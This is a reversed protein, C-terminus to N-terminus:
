KQLENKFIELSYNNHNIKNNIIEISKDNNKLYKANIFQDIIRLMLGVNIIEGGMALVNADYNERAAKAVLPCKTLICRIGKTKNAANSIGVGTGCIVIGLDVKKEAILTGVCHGYMPYHTRESDHTGCDYIIFGKEVLNKVIKTKLNTVIHDCGIAIKM